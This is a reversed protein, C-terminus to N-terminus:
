LNFAEIYLVRGEENFANAVKRLLYERSLGVEINKRGKTLAQRLQEEQWHKLPPEERSAQACVQRYAQKRLGQQLTHHVNSPRYVRGLFTGTPNGDM